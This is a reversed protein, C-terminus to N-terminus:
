CFYGVRSPILGVFIARCRQPLNVAWHNTRSIVGNTSEISSVLRVFSSYIKSVWRKSIIRPIFSLIRSTAILCCCIVVAKIYWPSSLARWLCPTLSLQDSSPLSLPLFLSLAPLASSTLRKVDVIFNAHGCGRGLVSGLMILMVTYVIKNPIQRLWM